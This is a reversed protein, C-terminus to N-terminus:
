VSLHQRDVETDTLVDRRLESRDGDTLEAVLTAARHTLTDWKGTNILSKPFLHSSIGVAIAGAELCKKASHMTIGGTPILPIHGLPGQLSRIYQSGGVATVPFVKVSYAGAQWATVIETPTLAGPIIPVEREVAARILDGNVHPSFIFQSGVAIAEHLMATDLITGTGIMCHPLEHRLAAISNAADASNWTIEIFRIGAAAAVHAMREGLARDTVRIVAILPHQSLLRLWLDPAM